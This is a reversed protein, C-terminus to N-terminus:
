RRSRFSLCLWSFTAAFLVFAVAGVLVAVLMGDLVPEQAPRVGMLMPVAPEVWRGIISITLQLACYNVGMIVLM